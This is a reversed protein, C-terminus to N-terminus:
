NSGGATSVISEVRERLEEDSMTSPEKVAEVFPQAAKGIFRDVVDQNAKFEVAKNECRESMKIIRALAKPGHEKLLQKIEDQANAKATKVIREQAFPQALVEKVGSRSRGTIEMIEKTTRGAAALEAAFRQWPKEQQHTQFRRLPNFLGDEVQAQIGYSAYRRNDGGPVLTHTNGKPNHNVSKGQYFSELDLKDSGM